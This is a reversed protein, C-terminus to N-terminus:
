AQGSMRKRARCIAENEYFPIELTEPSHGPCYKQAVLAAPEFPDRTKVLWEQLEANLRDQLAAHAAENALNNTQLPDARDDYLIWAKERTRAYTHTATVVGRWEPYSYHSPVLPHNIFASDPAASEDGLM